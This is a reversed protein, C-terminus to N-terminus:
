GDADKKGKKQEEKERQERKKREKKRRKRADKDESTVTAKVKPVDGGDREHGSHSANDRAGLEGQVIDQEREFQEKDQWEGELEQGPERPNDIPIETAGAIADDVKLGSLGHEDHKELTSDAELHEGKLGAEVRRLNHLVLGTSEGVAPTIPGNETLIANPHLSADTLTAELYNSLLSLATQTSIPTTSHHRIPPYASM